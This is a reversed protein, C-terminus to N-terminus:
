QRASLPVELFDAMRSLAAHYGRWFAMKHEDGIGHQLVLGDDALRMGELVKETIKSILEGRRKWCHVCVEAGEVDVPGHCYACAM